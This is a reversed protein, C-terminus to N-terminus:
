DHRARKSEMSQLGGLEETWLIRWAPISSYSTMVKELPDEWDLSQLRSEQVASLNTVMQAVQSAGFMMLYKNLHFSQHIMQRNTDITIIYYSM